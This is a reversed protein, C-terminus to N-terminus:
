GLLDLLVDGAVGLFVLTLYSISVHFLRMPNLSEGARARRGLVVSEWIFWAGAAGALLPYVPGSGLPWLLMSVAVTVVAYAVIQRTVSVTEAVVPLMPVEARAYDERFRMALAWFHPPQWFFVVAFLVAAAWSLEGTVAAWGILVPAAGAVGGVVTSHHTRRKLWLTYVVVYWGIAGLSLGAALPTTAWLLLATSVVTLVLGFTLAARPTVVQSPLPRGETRHMLGDIDRDCYCNLANAAGAALAGGVLTAPVLFGAPFRGAALMMTPLTTVLLLEVIRPKTLSLYARLVTATSRTETPQRDAVATM